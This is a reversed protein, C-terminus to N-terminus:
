EVLYRILEPNKSVNLENDVIFDSMAGKKFLINHVKDDVTDKALVTYVHVTSTSTARHCRDEAQELTAMNWPEDLFVVRSAVTLTHSTGMAGVTGLIVMCEPDEIFKRKSIERSESDMTGTYSVPRVNRRRLQRYLSRLPEVWNSFVVVKEGCSVIDCVLEVARKMKANCSLYRSSKPDVDPDVLEPCVNVQRLRLLKGLPNPSNSVDSINGLIDDQVQKYLRKQVNSNEVYEVHRIKPPLDLVSEKTRRLMNSDLMSKLRSVNKYGIVNHGGYGGYICYKQNWKWYSYESHAGVLLLPLFLDTPKNVVPTGTMPLWEVANGTLKKIRIIQKGQESQPSVNKHVEDLVIMSIDGNLCMEAIKMTVTNRYAGKKFRDTTRLAEVNVVIFYPLPDKRKVDSYVYGTELDKLKDKGSGNFNVSGDRRRRSGLVYARMSGNTHKSVDEVWTYKASNVCCVVLCHKAAETDRKLLALNVAELTKGCNHVVIGNCVFNHYVPHLVGVDYVRERAHPQVSRVCSFGENCSGWCPLSSEVRVRDGVALRDARKWGTDTKLEHDPTCVVSYGNELTVKLTVRVGKDFVARVPLYRFFEGCECKILVSEGRLHMDYLKELTVFEQWYGTKVEVVCKGSVCGMEDALLFGNFNGRAKRGLSYKLCDIQHDYLRHGNQVYKRVATVDVDPISSKPTCTMPKDVGLDEDSSVRLESYFSTDRIINIFFGIKDKPVTWLKSSPHWRKGPGMKVAEVLADNYPFSIEYVEGNSVVSIM